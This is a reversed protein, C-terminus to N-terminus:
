LSATLFSIFNKLTPSKGRGKKCVAGISLTHPDKLPVAAIGPCSFLGFTSEASLSIGEGVAVASIISEMRATRIVSPSVGAKEFLKMCLQHIFTHGPMLIFDEGELEKLSVSPKGALPHSIPLLVTLRDKALLTFPYKEPNLVHERVIILDFRDRELGDSLEQEEAEQLSFHIDPSQKTFEHLIPTLGYQSLVPLTGVRLSLAADDQFRSLAELSKRYQGILKVAEGYFVKGAPTLVASRGSRDWLSLNLEKELNKIQKSLTSQVIHLSEAADFFTDSEAAAIFYELQDFTM